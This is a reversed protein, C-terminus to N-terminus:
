RHVPLPASQAARLSTSGEATPLEVSFAAGKGPESALRIRGEHAELIKQALALGLGMGKARTTFLPEFIRHQDELSVGPGTDEVTVWVTTDSTGATIRLLGNGEMAQIANRILHEFVQLLQGEDGIVMPLNEDVQLELTITEPVACYEVASRILGGLDLRRAEPEIGSSYDVLGNIIRRSHNIEREIIELHRQMKEDLGTSRRRLFYVANNIVGLPNRLEHAISGGVLGIAALQESRLLQEKQHGVRRELERGWAELEELARAREVARAVREGLVQMLTLAPPEFACPYACDIRAAGIVKGGLRIPVVLFAASARGTSVVPLPDVDAATDGCAMVQTEPPISRLWAEVSEAAAAWEMAEATGFSARLELRGSEQLFITGADGGVGAVTRQLLQELLSDLPLDSLAVDTLSQLATLSSNIEALDAAQTRLRQEREELAEAMHAFARTLAALENESGRQASGVDSEGLQRARSYDGAEVGRAALVLRGVPETLLHFCYFVLVIGVLGALVFAVVLWRKLREERQTIQHRFVTARRELHGGLSEALRVFTSLTGQLYQHEFTSARDPAAGIAYLEAQPAQKSFDDAAAEVQATLYQDRPDTLQMQSLERAAQGVMARSFRALGLEEPARTPVYAQLTDDFRLANLAMRDAADAAPLLADSVIRRQAQTAEMERMAIAIVAAMIM